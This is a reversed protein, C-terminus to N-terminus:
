LEGRRALGDSRRLTVRALRARHIVAHDPRPRRAWHNSSRDQGERHDGQKRAHHQLAFGRTFTIERSKVPRDLRHHGAQPGFVAPVGGLPRGVQGRALRKACVRVEAGGVRTGQQKADQREVRREQDPNQQRQRYACGPHKEQQASKPSAAVCCDQHSSRPTQSSEGEGGDGHRRHRPCRHQRGPGDGEDHPRDCHRRRTRHHESRSAQSQADAPPEGTEITAVPTNTTAAMRSRFIASVEAVAVPIKPSVGNNFSADTANRAPVKAAGTSIGPAASESLDIRASCMASSFASSHDNGGNRIMQAAKASRRRCSECRATPRTLFRTGLEIRHDGRRM